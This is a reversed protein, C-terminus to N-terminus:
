RVWKTEHVWGLIREAKAPNLASTFGPLPHALPVGPYASQIAEETLISLMTERANIFFAEHGTWDKEVALRCARAADRRDTWGWFGMSRRGAPDTVPTQQITRQTEEDMLAHFRMSAIQMDRRRCFADAMEEGLWKSQAYGDEVRTPHKEDIPFYKPPVPAKSFGAGIANISSAMVVKSIGHIEAAQLVNWNSVMNIRFVEHEPAVLPNPIAAMHIVAGAGALAAAVEGFDTCDVQLFRAGQRPGEKTDANTVRHGHALLEPIIYQGARGSGGTVVVNM